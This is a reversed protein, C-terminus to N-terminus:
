TKWFTEFLSDVTISGLGGETCAEEHWHTVADPVMKEGALLVLSRELDEDDGMVFPPADALLLLRWPRHAELMALLPALLFRDCRELYAALDLPADQVGAFEPAEVPLLLLDHERVAELVRGPPFAEASNRAVNPAVGALPAMGLWGALGRGWAGPAWVAGSRGHVPHVSLPDPCSGGGWLSLGNAPNEGLDLRVQNIEHDRLREHIEEELAALSRAEESQQLPPMPEDGVRRWPSFGTPWPGDAKALGLLLHGPGAVLAVIDRSQWVSQLAEALARTEAETLGRVAPERITGDVLTVFDARYWIRDEPLAAVGAAELGGRHVRRLADGSAGCVAAPVLGERRLDAANELSAFGSRGLRALARLTPTRCSMLLSRDETGGINRWAMGQLYIIVNKM